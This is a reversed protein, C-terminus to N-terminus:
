SRTGASLGREIRASYRSLSFCLTWFALGAFFYATKRV